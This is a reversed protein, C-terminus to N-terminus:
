HQYKIALHKIMDATMLELDYKAHWNWDERARLDDIRKPWLDAIAQRFDPAYTTQFHPYFKQIARTVDEPAFSCGAINYSTRIKIKEVPAQMLEITARIADDMYMMPLITGKNLFSVFNFGQVAQHYIDVAYDTTGGGPMSKYGIIGPYRVSRVDLGYNKFYYNCWSEGAVKSIGYVTEPILPAFQGTNERDYEIGFVAITSPVFVRNLKLERGAELVNILGSMNIDWAWLPNQEGRASLIAALHYIQTVGNARICEFLATRDTVDVRLYNPLEINERIDSAIVQEVGYIQRLAETLETGIQGGAGIILIKNDM